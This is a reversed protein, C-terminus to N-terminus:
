SGLRLQIFGVSKVWFLELSGQRRDESKKGGWCKKEGERSRRKRRGGRVDWTVSNKHRRVESRASSGRELGARREWPSWIPSLSELFSCSGKKQMGSKQLMIKKLTPHFNWYHLFAPLVWLLRASTLCLRLDEPCAGWKRKNSKKKTLVMVAM